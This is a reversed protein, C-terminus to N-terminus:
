TALPLLLWLMLVVFATVFSYYSIKSKAATSNFRGDAHRPNRKDLYSATGTIMLVVEAVFWIPVAIGAEVNGLRIYESFISLYLAAM